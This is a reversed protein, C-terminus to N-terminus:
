LNVVFAKRGDKNRQEINTTLEEVHCSLYRGGGDRGDRWCNRGGDYWGGDVWEAPNGDSWMDLWRRVVDVEVGCGGGDASQVGQM